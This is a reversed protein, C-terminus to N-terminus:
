QNIANAWLKVEKCFLDADSFTTGMARNEANKLYPSYTLIVFDDAPVTRSSIQFTIVDGGKYDVYDSLIPVLFDMCYALYKKNVSEWMHGENSNNKPVLLIGSDQEGILWWLLPGNVRTGDFDVNVGDDFLQNGDIKAASIIDVIQEYSFSAALSVNLFLIAIVLCLPFLCKRFRM